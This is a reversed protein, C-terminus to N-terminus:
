RCDPLYVGYAKGAHPLRCVQEPQMAKLGYFLAYQFRDPRKMM